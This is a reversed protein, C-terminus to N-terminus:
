RGFLLRGFRRPTSEAEIFEAVSVVNMLAARHADFVRYSQAYDNGCARWERLIAPAVDIAHRYLPSLRRRRVIACGCDTDVTCHWLDPRSTLIDVYLKYSVGFWSVLDGRTPRCLDPTDPLCDHVLVVGNRNVLTLADNLDRRATEHEHWADLFVIDFDGHEGRIRRVM